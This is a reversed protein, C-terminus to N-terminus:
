SRTSFVNASNNILLYRFRRSVIIKPSPSRSHISFGSPFTGTFVLHHFFSIPFDTEAESRRVLQSIVYYHFLHNPKNPCRISVSKSASQLPPPTPHHHYPSIKKLTSRRSTSFLSPPRYKRGGIKKRRPDARVSGQRPPDDLTPSVAVGTGLGGSHGFAVMTHPYPPRVGARAPHHGMYQKGHAVEKPKMNGYHSLFDFYPSSLRNQYLHINNETKKTIYKRYNRQSFCISM